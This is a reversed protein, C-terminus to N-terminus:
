REKPMSKLLSAIVGIAATAQEDTLYPMNACWESHYDTVYQKEYLLGKATLQLRIFRKDDGADTKQVVEMDVLENVLKTVSPMTVGLRNSIDSVSVQGTSHELEYIGDIVHVHRPKMGQPLDPMTETIKKAVFCADLLERLKQTTM